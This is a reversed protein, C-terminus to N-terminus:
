SWARFIVFPGERPEEEDDLQLMSDETWVAVDERLVRRFSSTSEEVVEADMDADALLKILDRVKM